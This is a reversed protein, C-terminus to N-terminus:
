QSTQFTVYSGNTGEPEEPACPSLYSIRQDLVQILSNDVGEAGSFLFNLPSM